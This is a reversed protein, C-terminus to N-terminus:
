KNIKILLQFSFHLGNNDLIFGYRDRVSIKLYTLNENNNINIKQKHNQKESWFLINGNNLSIPIKFSCPIPSLFNTNLNDISLNVFLDHNINYCSPATISAGSQADTTFGLIYQNLIPSTSNDIAITGTSISLTSKNTTTSFTLTSTAGVLVSNIATQLATLLSSITYNGSTITAQRSTAGQKFYFTNCNTRINYFGLPMQLNLLEVSDIKEVIPIDLKSICNFPSSTSANLSDFSIYSYKNNM